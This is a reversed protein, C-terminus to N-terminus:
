KSQSMSVETSLWIHVVKLIYKIRVDLAQFMKDNITITLTIHAMSDTAVDLYFEFRDADIEYFHNLFFNFFKCSLTFLDFPYIFLFLSLFTFGFTVVGTKIAHDDARTGIDLM